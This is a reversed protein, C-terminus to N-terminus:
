FTPPSSKKADKKNETVKVEDTGDVFNTGTIHRAIMRALIRYGQEPNGQHVGDNEPLDFM